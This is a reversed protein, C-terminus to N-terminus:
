GSGAGTGAGAGAQVLFAEASTDFSCSAMAPVPAVVAPTPVASSNLLNMWTRVLSRMDETYGAHREHGINDHM